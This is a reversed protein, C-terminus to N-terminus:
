LLILKAAIDDLLSKANVLDVYNFEKGTQFQGKLFKLANFTDTYEALNNKLLNM